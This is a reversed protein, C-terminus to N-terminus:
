ARKKALQKSIIPAVTKPDTPPVLVWNDPFIAAFGEIEKFQSMEEAQQKELLDDAAQSAAAMDFVEDEEDFSETAADEPMEFVEDQNDINQREDM